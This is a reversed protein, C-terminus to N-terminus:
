IGSGRDQWGVCKFLANVLSSKGLGSEGVVMATFSFGKRVSKRHVQNPLNSFGVFSTIRRTVPGTSPSGHAGSCPSGLGLSQKSRLSASPRARLSCSLLCLMSVM